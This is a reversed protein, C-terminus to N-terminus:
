PEKVPTQLSSGAEPEASWLVTVASHRWRVGRRPCSCPCGTLGSTVRCWPGCSESWIHEGTKGQLTTTFGVPAHVGCNKIIVLFFLCCSLHGRRMVMEAWFDRHCIFCAAGGAVLGCQGGALGAPPCGTGPGPGLAGWAAGALGECRKWGPLHESRTSPVQNEGEHPIFLFLILVSLSFATVFISFFFHESKIESGSDIIAFSVACHVTEAGSRRRPWPCIACVLGTERGHFPLHLLFFLVQGCVSLVYM